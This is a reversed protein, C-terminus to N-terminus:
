KARSVRSLNEALIHQRCQIDGLRPERAQEMNGTLSKIVNEILLLRYRGLHCNAQPMQESITRFDPLPKLARVIQRERSLGKLFLELVHRNQLGCSGQMWIELSKIKPSIARPICGQALACDIPPSPIRADSPPQKRAVIERRSLSAM